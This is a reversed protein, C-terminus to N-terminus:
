GQGAMQSSGVNLLRGLGRSTRVGDPTTAGSVGSAGCRFAPVGLLMAFPRSASRLYPKVLQELVM